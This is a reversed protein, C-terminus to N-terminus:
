FGMQKKSRKCTQKKKIGKSKLQIQPAANGSTKAKKKKGLQLSATMAALEDVSTVKSSTGM